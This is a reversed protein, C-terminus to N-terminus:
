LVDSFANLKSVILPEEQLTFTQKLYADFLEKALGSYFLSEASFDLALFTNEVDRAEVQTKNEKQLKQLVARYRLYAKAYSSNSM